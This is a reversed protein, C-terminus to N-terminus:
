NLLEGSFWWLDRISASTGCLVSGRQHCSCVFSFLVIYCIITSTGDLSLTAVHMSGAAADGTFTGNPKFLTGDVAVVKHHDPGYCLQRAEDLDDVV